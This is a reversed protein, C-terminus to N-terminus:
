LEWDPRARLRKWSTLFKNKTFYAAAGIMAANDTTFKKEPLLLQVGRHTAFTQMLAARLANNATVGGGLMVTKPHFKKVARETKAVLVEVIAQEYSACADAIIKKTRRPHADAWLRGATKLGAFSFDFSADRLMPRPFDIAGSAGAAARESIEPGGPYPLGLVKAFKDFAEGAADDRTAGLKKWRDPRALVVLETHGGSVVLALAPFKPLPRDIISSYIHGLMHNAGYVPVNWQWALTKAAIVGVWLSTVLGPGCTVAIADPKKIKARALVDMVLPAITEAHARAAVEPVVGGYVRHLDIQSATMQAAVHVRGRTACVLAVSTDDCSTEIALINM